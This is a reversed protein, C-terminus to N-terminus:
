DRLMYNNKYDQPNLRFGVGMENFTFKKPKLSYNQTELLDQPVDPNNICKELVQKIKSKIEPDDKKLEKTSVLGTLPKENNFEISYLWAYDQDNLAGAPISIGTGELILAEKIM